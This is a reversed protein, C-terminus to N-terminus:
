FTVLVGDNVYVSSVGVHNVIVVDKFNGRRALSQKLLEAMEQCNNHSIFVSRNKDEGTQKLISETMKSVLKHMGVAQGILAISGDKATSLIQKVHLKGAKVVKTASLRGIMSLYNMDNLVLMTKMSEAYLQIEKTIKEFEYGKEELEMLKLVIQTEGCAVSRSDVVFINKEGIDERYLRAALCASSYSSSLESSVTIVYVRDAETKYAEMFSAPSPCSSNPCKGSEEAIEIFDERDFNVDDAVEYDGIELTLPVVEIKEDEMLYQPLQCCSDVVIKYQKSM